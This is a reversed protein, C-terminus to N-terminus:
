GKRLNCEKCLIQLSCNKNHYDVWDKKFGEDEDKFIKLNYIKCDAFSTPLQKDTSNKFNDKLVQFSPSDHDVHYNEASDTRCHNCIMKSQSQKFKMIDNMIASRMAKTLLVSDTREKKFECCQVWSFDTESGDVRKIMTQFYKPTLSNPVIFFYDIGVGKKEDSRAHNDILKIFFKYQLHDKNITCCGLTNVINRTYEECAKKTKFELNGINYKQKM